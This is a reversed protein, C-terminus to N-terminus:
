DSDLEVRGHPVRQMDKAHIGYLILHREQLRRLLDILMLVLVITWM